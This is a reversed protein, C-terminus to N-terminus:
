LASGYPLHKGVWAERLNDRVPSSGLSLGNITKGMFRSHSRSCCYSSCGLVRSLM